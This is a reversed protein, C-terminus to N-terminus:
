LRDGWSVGDDSNFEPDSGVFSGRSARFEFLHRVLEELTVRAVLYEGRLGEAYGDHLRAAHEALVKLLRDCDRVILQGASRVM